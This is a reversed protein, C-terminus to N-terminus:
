KLTTPVSMVGSNPTQGPAILTTGPDSGSLVGGAAVSWGKTNDSLLCNAFHMHGSASVKFGTTNFIARSNYLTVSGGNAYFGVDNYHANSDSITLKGDVSDGGAYGNRDFASGEVYAKAGSANVQLGDHGNNNSQSNYMGLQGGAAQFEIGDAVFNQITVNNLRLVGVQTVLIGDNGTAYGRLTLGNISVNGSTNVTIANAGAASAVISADVGGATDLSVAQTLSAPAYSGSTAVVIEGGSNTVSLAHNITLCPMALTCPNTDNGTASVFTQNSLGFATGSAAAIVACLIAKIGYNDIKM